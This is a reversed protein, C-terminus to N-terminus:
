IQIEKKALMKTSLWNMLAIFACGFIVLAAYDKLFTFVGFTPKFDPKFGTLVIAAALSVLLLFAAFGIWFRESKSQMSHKKEIAEALRIAFNAPLRFEPERSIAADLKQDLERENYKM